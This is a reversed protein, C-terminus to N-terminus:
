KIQRMEDMVLMPPNYEQSHKEIEEWPISIHAIKGDTEYEIRSLLKAKYTILEPTKKSLERRKADIENLSVGKEIMEAIIRVSHATVQETTLGLSDSLIGIVILEATKKDIKWEYKKALKYILET